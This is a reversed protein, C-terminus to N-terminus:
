ESSSEKTIKIKGRPNNIYGYKKFFYALGKIHEFNMKSIIKKKSIRQWEHIINANQCFVVKYGNQWIRACYDVDEPAYFIKEDLMGVKDVIDKRLLWCAGMLYDVEYIEKRENFDYNELMEGRKEFSKIPIAKLIKLKVTPFKRGSKQVLGNSTQMKPGVIGIDHDNELVQIMEKMADKNIKTDSDLFCVYDSDSEIQKIGMNRSKTTGYNKNLLITNIKTEYKELLKRTDDKSGNDIVIINNEIEKISLISNICNEIFKESNWTLIIYSIKM